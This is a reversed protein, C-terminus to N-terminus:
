GFILDSIYSYFMGKRKSILSPWMCCAFTHCNEILTLHHSAGIETQFKGSDVVNRDNNM